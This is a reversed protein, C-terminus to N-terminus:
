KPSPQVLGFGIWEEIQKRVDKLATEADVDYEECLTSALEEPTFIRGAALEWIRAATENLTFVNTLNVESDIDVIMYQKGIKRLQLGSKLKMIPNM